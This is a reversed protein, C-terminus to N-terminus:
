LLPVGFYTGAGDPGSAHWSETSTTGAAGGRFLHVHGLNDAGYSGVVVDSYGDGDVDGGGALRIGFYANDGDYQTIPVSPETAVGNPGNQVGFYVWAAGYRHDGSAPAYPDSVLLDMIGDGNVDGAATVEAAFGSTVGSGMPVGITANPSATVGTGGGFHIHFRGSDNGGYPPAYGSVVIDGFRDGNVDGLFAIRQTDSGFTTTRVAHTTPFSATPAGLYVYTGAGAYANVNAGAAVFLDAYADGNVDGMAIATGFNTGSGTLSISPTTPPGSASGFYVDVVTPCGTGGNHGAAIDAYGDGNLDDECSLGQGLCMGTSTLTFSAPEHIGTPGGRYVYVRGLLGLAEYAGVVLDSYGDGDVDGACSQSGFQGGVGGPGTLRASPTAPLPSGAYLFASGPASAPYWQGVVIDAQGDANYDPQHDWHADSVGPRPLLTVPWVPSTATGVVGGATGTLRWYHLGATLTASPSFSSGAAEFTTEVISCAHDGCIEIRAGTAPAALEWHFTPRLSMAFSGSLPAIPRPAPIPSCVSGVLVQGAACSADVAFADEAFADTGSADVSAADNMAADSQPAADIGGADVGGADIRMPGADSGVVPNTCGAVATIIAVSCALWERNSMSM